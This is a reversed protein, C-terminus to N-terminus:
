SLRSTFLEAGLSGVLLLMIAGLIALLGGNHPKIESAKWRGQQRWLVYGSFLVVFFGHSYDPDTWWNLVLARLVHFYVLVILGSLIASWAIWSQDTTTKSFTATTSM